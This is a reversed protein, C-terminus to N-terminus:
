YNLGNFRPNVVNNLKSGFRYRFGVNTYYDYSSAILRRQTLVDDRTAAGKQLSIQDHIISYYAYLYFSLGKFLRLDLSGNLSLNNKRIDDLYNSWFVGANVNGWKQTYSAIMSASQMPLMEKTKFYITTDYYNNSSMGVYYDFVFRKSSNLSYPYYNYEIKAMATIRSRYNDFVSKRYSADLGWSWHSNITFDNEAYLSTNNSKVVITESAYSSESRATNLYASFLTKMKETVREATLNANVRKSKYNQSGNISGSAGVTFVWSNWPDKTAKKTSAVATTDNKFSIELRSGMSTRAAYRTLGLKVYQLMQVRQEDSTAIATTFYKLTDDQGKFDKQGSFIVEYANGGGGTSQSRVQLHVAADFRDRVFDVWKIENRLYDFDCPYTQCDFFVSLKALNKQANATSILMFILCCPVLFKRM